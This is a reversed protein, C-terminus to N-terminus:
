AEQPKLSERISTELIRELDPRDLDEIALLDRGMM